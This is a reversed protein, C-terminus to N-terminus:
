EAHACVSRTRYLGSGTSAFTRLDSGDDLSVVGSAGPLVSRLLVGRGALNADRRGDSCPGPVRACRHYGRKLPIPQCNLGKRVGLTLVTGPTM